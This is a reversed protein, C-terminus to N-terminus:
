PLFDELLGQLAHVARSYHTKVSGESCGMAQATQRVDMGEWARLIFAHRQRIPLAQLAKELAETFEHRMVRKAPDPLATDAADQLPDEGEDEGGPGRGLWCMFRRRISTRRHWDTIRSQLVKYFLPHWEEEPRGTYHKVFHFMAEQVLDLAEEKSGSAFRAIKFAKREIYILFRNLAEQRELTQDELVKRGHFM